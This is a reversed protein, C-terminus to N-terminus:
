HTSAKVLPQLEKQNNFDDDVAQRGSLKSELSALHKRQDTLRQQARQLLEPRFFANGKM